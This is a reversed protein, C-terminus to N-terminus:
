WMGNVARALARDALHAYRQTFRLATIYPYEKVPNKARNERSVGPCTHSNVPRKAVTDDRAWGLRMRGARGM